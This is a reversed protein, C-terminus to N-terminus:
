ICIRVPDTPSGPIDQPPTGRVLELYNIYKQNGTFYAATVMTLYHARSIVPFDGGCSRTPEFGVRLTFPIKKHSKLGKDFSPFPM